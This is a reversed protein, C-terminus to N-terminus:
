SQQNPREDLKKKMDEPTLLNESNLDTKIDSKLTDFIGNTQRKIDNVLKGLTRMIEPLKEPPVVILIIIGLIILHSLSM